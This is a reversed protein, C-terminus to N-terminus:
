AVWAATAPLPANFLDDGATAATAFPTPSKMAFAPTLAAVAADESTGPEEDEEDEEEDEAAGTRVAAAAAAAGALLASSIRESPDGAADTTATAAGITLPCSTSSSPVDLMTAGPSSASSSGDVLFYIRRLLASPWPDTPDNAIPCGLGFVASAFLRFVFAGASDDASDDGLEDEAADIDEELLVRLLAAGATDGAVFLFPPL